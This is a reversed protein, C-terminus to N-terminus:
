QTTQAPQEAQPPAISRGYIEVGLWVLAALMLSCVLVTFVQVGWRGQRAKDTAIPKGAEDIRRM